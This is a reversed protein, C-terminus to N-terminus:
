ISIRDRLAEIVEPSFGPVWALDDVSTYGGFRERYALVRTAQTVSFDAGRLDEFSATNINVPGGPARGATEIPAVGPAPTSPAVPGAPPAVPSAPAPGAGGRLADSAVREAAEARLEAQRAREEARDMREM